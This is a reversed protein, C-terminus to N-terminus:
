REEKQSLLYNLRDRVALELRKEKKSRSKLFLRYYTAAKEKQHALDWARGLRYLVEVDASNIRYAKMCLEVAQDIEGREEYISALLLHAKLHFPDIQLLKKLKNKASTYQGVKYLLLGLNFLVKPDKPNLAYLYILEKEAEKLRSKQIYITALNIRAEKHDQNFSLAQRYAEIAQDFDKQRQFAVGKKYYREARTSSKEKVTLSRQALWEKMEPIFPPTLEESPIEEPASRPTNQLVPEKLVEKKVEALTSEKSAKGTEPEPSTVIEPPKETSLERNRPQQTGQTSQDEASVQSSKSKSFPKEEPTSTVAPETPQKGTVTKELTKSSASQSKEEETKKTGAKNKDQSPAVPSVPPKKKRGSISRRAVKPSTEQAPKLLFQYGVGLSVIVALLIAVVM